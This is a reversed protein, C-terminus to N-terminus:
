TKKAIAVRCISYNYFASFFEDTLFWIIKKYNINKMEEFYHERLFLFALKFYMEISGSM